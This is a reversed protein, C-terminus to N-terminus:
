AGNQHSHRALMETALSKYAVAGLSSPDYNIVPLGYSPAESLRVNRPIMTKFVLDRLNERVDLEVQHCLNNRRDYMTLVVGELRLKSNATERIERVSLMLQSLGELAFFEAQLPVLVSDSAVMANLTLLNLSPPCDILIYDLNLADIDPGTLADSILYIRRATSVLELDASSLDSNAPSILLNPVATDRLAEGLSMENLLLDYTTKKRDTHDVGLGTSANGQPDLDIIAVRLGKAALSAGLNITTTTKGVGGKQNAVSIIKPPKKAM